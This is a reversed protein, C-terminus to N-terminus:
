LCHLINAQFQALGKKVGSTHTGGARSTAITSRCDCSSAKLNVSCRFFDHCRRLREVRLWKKNSLDQVLGCVTENMDPFRLPRTNAKELRFLRFRSLVHPVLDLHQGMSRMLKDTLINGEMFDMAVNLGANAGWDREPAMRMCSGNSGGTNDAKLNDPRGCCLVLSLVSINRAIM